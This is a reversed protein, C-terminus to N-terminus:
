PTEDSFREVQVLEVQVPKGEGMVLPAKKGVKNLSKALMRIDILVDSVKCNLRQRDSLKHEDSESPGIEERRSRSLQAILSKIDDRDISVGEWNHAFHNRIKRLTELTDYGDKRVLGLVFAAKIRASFTGLPANFGNVLEKAQKPERLYALLLLELTDEAFAAMSLIMSRDDHEHLLELMSNLGDAYPENHPNVPPRLYGKKSEFNV